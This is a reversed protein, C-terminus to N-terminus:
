NHLETNIFAIYERQAEIEAQTWAPTIIYSEPNNQPNLILIHWTGLVVTAAVKYSNM